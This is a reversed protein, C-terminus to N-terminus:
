PETRGRDESMEFSFVYNKRLVFEAHGDCFAVNGGTAGHNDVPDPYNSIGGAQPDDADLILWVRAPGAIIGQLNFASNLHAYTHVTKQTKQVPNPKIGRFYGFVEYSTGSATKNTGNDMLDLVQGSASLNTRIYNQTSPCTFIRLSSIFGPYLWSLDDDAISKTNSFAGKSDQDAYMQSGLMMQKLNSLCSIRRAREKARSLAPLLLAALIGIIAIVVLLEILTFGRVSQPENTPNSQMFWDLKPPL